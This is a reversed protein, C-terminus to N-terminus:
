KSEQKMKIEKKELGTVAPGYIVEGDPAFRSGHCPCDWTKEFSNWHVICKMHTCVPSVAHLNYNEDRSVAMKEGDVRLVKGEGPNIESVSDVESGIRDTVFHKAVDLNEKIFDPASAVPTFRKSSYAKIWENEKGVILDAVILGAITGYVLGDGSFGTAVFVNNGLSTNGIYPLGDSPEFYEASWRFDISEIDFRDKVYKELSSIREEYNVEKGTKHDEGGVVVYAGKDTNYFRTYHYPEFMDWFLGIAHESNKLKAGVMYSIYPSSVTQLLNFFLPIQTAEFVYTAKISGSTTKLVYTGSEENLDLVQTNEFILGGNCSICDSVGELYQQANFQAQNEFRIAKKIKFPLPISETLSVQLGVRKTADYEENIDSVQENTEAYLYGPLRTFDCQIGHTKVTREIFNIAEMRSTAVLRATEENFDSIVNRYENDIDTTLHCSSLGTTGSGIENKEIVAVKKKGLSLQLAATLGAIGGGIIAVDVECNEELKPFSVNPENERWISRRRM